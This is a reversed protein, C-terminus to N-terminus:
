GNYKLAAQRQLIDAALLDIEEEKEGPTPASLMRQMSLILVEDLKYPADGLLCLVNYKWGEDGTQFIAQIEDKIENVYPVFYDNVAPAVPWNLDQLWELLVPVDDRIQEVTMTQLLAVAADDGKTQPIYLQKNEM